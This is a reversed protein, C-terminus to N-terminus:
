VQSVPSIVLEDVRVYPPADLVFGVARGIDDATLMVQQAQADPVVPRQQLFDTAVDGPCFHCARIGHRAEQKNLSVAVASLASKSASYAVGAGPNFQWGAYSSIIVVVGASDRLQPLAADIVRAVAILNTDVIAAFDDLQQDAWTRRPNNLGASLVLGDIAGWEAVLADHVTAIQEPDTVDLPLVLAQGGDDTITRAVEELAEVRRGSLAVRWGTRAAQRAAAAGMGSGAGTVWLVKDNGAGATM